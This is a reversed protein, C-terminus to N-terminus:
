GIIVASDDLRSSMRPAEAVALWPPESFLENDDRFIKGSSRVLEMEHELTAPM